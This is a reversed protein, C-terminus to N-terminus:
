GSVRQYRLAVHELVHSPNTAERLFANVVPSGPGTAVIRTWSAGPALSVPGFRQVRGGAVAVEVTLERRTTVDNIVGVSVTSGGHPLIWLFTAGQTGTPAPLPSFGLAAAGALIAFAAGLAALRAPGISVRPWAITREHGRAAGLAAGAVAVLALIGMWPAIKLRVGIAELLLAALITAVVSLALSLLLRESPRLESPAFQAAALAYGPLVLVLGVAAPIRLAAVSAPLLSCALLALLALAAVLGLDSRARV